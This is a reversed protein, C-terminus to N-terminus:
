PNAWRRSRLSAPPSVRRPSVRLDDMERLADTARRLFTELAEADFAIDFTQSGSRFALEVSNADNVSFRVPCQGRLTIWAGVTMDNGYM